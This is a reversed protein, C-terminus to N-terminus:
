AAAAARPAVRRLRLASACTAIGACGCAVWLVVPAAHGVVAAAPTGSAISAGFLGFVIAVIATGVTQGGVRLTALLGSASATKSRPASGILERNNPSQFFGFGLGCVVGRSVIEFASPHAPLVAYLGLGATLVALGLTALIGVPYRDALRGAIPAVIAISLPWSTLLLGSELPTRGLSEQFFFPLAIYALGQSTFTALSTAAAMAFPPIRFLDLSIMPTELTFQRRVFVIAAAIGTVLLLATSWPPASRAFGDLGWITLAFGLGSTVVSIRDPWGGARSDDPLARNLAINVIGLPVNIAFLWPWPALALVFGGITPGAATSTAVVLANLGLARGLQERPFIERLIAPTISMIASAGLGQFARAAILVPLSRSLACILSGLVFVVVGIRYVRGAGRLQGLSAFTLLTATVAVQFGNVVWISASVDAHLDRAITPLATNAISGDLVSMAVSIALALYAVRRRPLPLGDAQETAAAGSV